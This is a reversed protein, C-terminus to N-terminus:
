RLRSISKTVCIGNKRNENKRDAVEEKVQNISEQFIAEFPYESDELYANIIQSKILNKSQLENRKRLNEAYDELRKLTKEYYQLSAESKKDPSMNMTPEPSAGSHDREEEAEEKEFEEDEELQRLEDILEQKKSVLKTRGDIATLIQEEMFRRHEAHQNHQEKLRNLERSKDQCEFDMDTCEQRMNDRQITKEIISDRLVRNTAEVNSKTQM